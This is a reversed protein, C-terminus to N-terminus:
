AVEAAAVQATEPREIRRCYFPWYTISFLLFLPVGFSPLARGVSSTSLLWWKDIAGLFTYGGYRPSMLFVIHGIWFRWLLILCVVILWISTSLRPKHYLRWALLAGLAALGPGGLVTGFAMGWEQPSLSPARLAVWVDQTAIWSLQYGFFICWGIAVATNLASSPLIKPAPFAPIAIKCFPCFTRSFWLSQGCNPCKM